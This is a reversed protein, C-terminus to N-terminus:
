ASISRNKVLGVTVLTSMNGNNVSFGPVEFLPTGTGDSPSAFVKIDYNGNAIDAYTSIDKFKLGSYTKKQNFYFDLAPADPSANVLRISGLNPESQAFGPVTTLVFAGIAIFLALSRLFKPM